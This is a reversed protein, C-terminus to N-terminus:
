AVDVAIPLEFYFSAGQGPASNFGITGSMHEIIEKSIALGLGTGAEARTASSDAQSFKQFIRSAFEDSIGSGQDDVEVRVSSDRQSIDITVHSNHPSFKVANSLLNNLVQQLRVDDVMVMAGAVSSTLVLQVGHKQAFPTFSDICQEALTTILHPQMKFTMKGASLKEMDLLDNILLSLRECNSVAIELMPKIATPIEGLAGGNILGLSGGISTLPTRLEHSVTSVFQSKLQENRKRESVDGEIAIFNTLENNENYIPEITLALWYSRGSKHYNLVETSIRRGQQIANRIELVKVKDTEPGQLFSGPSRGICESLSYGTIRSFGENTWEILGQADTIIVANDTHTAVLSLKRVQADAAIFDATMEDALRQAQNRQKLTVAVLLGLLLTIGSGMLLVYLPLPGLFRADFSPTSQVSVTWTRGFEEIPINVSVPQSKIYGSKQDAEVFSLATSADYMLAANTVEDGDYVKFDIDTDIATGGFIGAMLDDMRYPSYSYGLLAQMRQAPTDLPRNKRYVPVYMLFGAQVKDKNEQVLTVKGTIATINKEAARYLAEARTPESLMDFGFAAMNRGAFPELYVISSYLPREGRPHVDFESFGEKRVEAIHKPVESPQLAKSFGVGLIGPYNKELNLREVYTRWDERTVDSSADFLGAGGLLIQEHQRLRKKINSVLDDSLLTFREIRLRESNNQLSRSTAIVGVQCILLATILLQIFRKKKSPAAMKM